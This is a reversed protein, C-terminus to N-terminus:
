TQHKISTYVRPIMIFNCLKISSRAKEPKDNKHDAKLSLEQNNKPSSQCNTPNQYNAESQTPLITLKTIPRKITGNKTKVTVVRVIGDKGPHVHIVRELAGRGAPLNAEHIIVIDDIKINETSQQWKNRASLVTLYESKWRKWVDNFIKQTMHWRTREDKETEVISLVPGSALFHSPTLYNIDNPDETIACLPRSNLCAEIQTLPTSFEEFTLKQEGIVRRLHYKVSKVAAEWLGGASPWSPANFHWTINM